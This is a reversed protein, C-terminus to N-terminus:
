TVVTPISGAFLMNESCPTSADPVTTSRLVTDRAFNASSSACRAGHKIPISAQEPAWSHARRNVTNPCVTFSIAGFNTAGYRLLPLFSPLSASAIQSATVRGFMRKTGTFVTACREDRALVGVIFRIFM